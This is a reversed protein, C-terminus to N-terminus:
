LSDAPFVKKPLPRLFKRSLMDSLEQALLVPFVLACLLYRLSLRRPSLALRWFWEMNIQRIWEPARIQKGVIFDIGAGISVFGTRPALTKGLAALVEQKPAGFALLCVSAGSRDVEQMLECALASSPHFNFPPSRTYVIKLGPFQERLKKSAAELTENTTGLMALTGHADYVTKILPIVLDSGTTRHIEKGALRGLWVIPFGDPVVVDHNRYAEFYDEDTALKVVHYLNITALAFGQRARVMTDIYELTAAQSFINISISRNGGMPSGLM